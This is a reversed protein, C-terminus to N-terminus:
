KWLWRFGPGVRFRVGHGKVAGCMLLTICEDRSKRFTIKQVLHLFECFIVSPIDVVESFYESKRKWPLGCGSRLFGTAGVVCVGGRRGGGVPPLPEKLFVRPFTQFRDGTSEESGPRIVTYHPRLQCSVPRFWPVLARFAPLGSFYPAIVRPFLALRSFITTSM